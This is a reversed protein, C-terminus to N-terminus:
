AKADLDFQRRLGSAFISWPVVKRVRPLWLADSGVRYRLRPNRSTAANLVAKAVLEPSCGKEVGDKIAATVRNRPGEYAPVAGGSHSCRPQHQHPHLRARDPQRRHRLAQTRVLPIGLLGRPRVEHRLLLRQVAGRHPRGAIRYQHNPRRRGPAHVAPCCQRHACLRLFENRIPRQGRGPQDRRHSRQARPGRQQRPYRHPGCSIGGAGRM